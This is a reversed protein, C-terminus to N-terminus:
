NKGTVNVHIDIQDRGAMNEAVATYRGGHKREIRAIM